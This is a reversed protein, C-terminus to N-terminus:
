LVTRWEPTEGDRLQELIHHLEILEPVLEDRGNEAYYSIRTCIRDVESLRDSKVLVAATRRFSEWDQELKNAASVAEDTAGGEYLEAVRDAASILRGCRVNVWVGSVVSALILLSLIAASIKIRTM